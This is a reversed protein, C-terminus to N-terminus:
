DKQELRELDTFFCYFDMTGASRGPNSGADKQLVSPSNKM